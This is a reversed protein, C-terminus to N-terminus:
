LHPLLSEHSANVSYFIFGCGCINQQHQHQCGMTECVSFIATPSTLGFTTFFSGSKCIKQSAVLQDDEMLTSPLQTGPTRYAVM